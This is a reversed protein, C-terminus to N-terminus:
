TLSFAPKKSRHLRQHSRWRHWCRYFRCLLWPRAGAAGCADRMQPNWGYRPRRTGIGPVETPLSYQINKNECGGGKLILRVELDDSQWQEFYVVPTQPGLNDGTNKGTVPDVSNPRLKGLKTAKEIAELIDKKFEIQNFGVPCKIKFTPLGTDQCIPLENDCAMNVNVAITQLALDARTDPKEAALGQNLAARVDDPLNSSTQVILEYLSNTFRGM